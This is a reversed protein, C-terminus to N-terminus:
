SARAVGVYELVRLRPTFRAAEERWNFIVSRPAVVLSPRHGDPQLRVGGLNAGTKRSRGADPPGERLRTRRGELLALVMVTEGLGMDDARGGGFGFRQLFLFWGLADRQYGRLTGAFSPPPDVARIGELSQLESRIRGFTDDWSVDPQAALLAD